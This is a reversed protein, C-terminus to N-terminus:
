GDREELARKLRRRVAEPDARGSSARMVEGMFYGLLKRDGSRCRRVEEPSGGLVRDVWESLRGADEVQSLEHRRVLEDVDLRRGGRAAQDFLLQVALAATRSSLAGQLRLGVLRALEAPELVEAESGGGRRNLVAAVDGMIMNAAVVAFSADRPGVAAELYAAREPTAAIQCATDETLGFRTVLRKEIKRPSAPLGRRLGEVKAASLEVLPLDPEPFYRYDHEEEKGRLTRTKRQAADYLRTEPEVPRGAALRQAMRRGEFALARQVNGFSNLNKIEVRTGLGEGGAPRVSVNVDVRLSGKEMNCGSVKAYHELLQKLRSLVFRAEEPSRLDPETVIEILPVGARNLDVATAGEFRDHISKGADEEIHLGQLRVRRGGRTSPLDIAGGRALPDALQTIQYGKPLDPYFYQKRVFESTANVTCGLVHAARVALRVAEENAVPLAGPLGLCVPCVLTNPPAGFRVPCGCFMKSVTRLQVHVELGIVTELGNL